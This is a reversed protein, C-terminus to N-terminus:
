VRNIVPNFVSSNKLFPRLLNDVAQYIVTRPINKDSYQIDVLGSVVSEAIVNGVPQLDPTLEESSARWALECTADMIRAPVADSAQLRSDIVVDYRPFSLSQESFTRCGKFRDMYDQEIKSAGKILLVKKANSTLAAWTTNGRSAFYRNAYEPTCYSNANAVGTGDEVIFWDDLVTTTSITTASTSESQNNTATVACQLQHDTNEAAVTYTSSTAGTITETEGNVRLWQYAYTLSGSGTWTGKACTLVSGVAVTGSITPLVTNAPAAM